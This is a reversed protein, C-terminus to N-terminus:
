IWVYELQTLSKDAITKSWEKEENDNNPDRKVFPYKLKYINFADKHSMIMETENLLHRSFSVIDIKHTFEYIIKAVIDNDIGGNTMKYTKINPITTKSKSSIYIMRYKSINMSKFMDKNRLKSISGFIASVNLNRYKLINYCENNDDIWDNIIFLKCGSKEVIKNILSIKYADILLILNISKPIENFITNGFFSAKEWYNRLLGKRILTDKINFILINKSM